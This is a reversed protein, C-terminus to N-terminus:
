RYKAQGLDENMLMLWFIKLDHYVKLIEHTKLGKKVYVEFIGCLGLSDSKQTLLPPM